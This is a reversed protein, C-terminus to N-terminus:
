NRALMALFQVLLRRIVLGIGYGSLWRIGSEWRVGVDMGAEREMLREKGSGREGDLVGDM